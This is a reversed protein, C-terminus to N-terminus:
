HIGIRLTRLSLSREDTFSSKFQVTKGADIFTVQTIDNDHALLVDVSKYGVDDLTTLRNWSLDVTGFSAHRLAGTQLGSIANGSLNFLEVRQRLPFVDDPVRAIANHSLDVARLRPLRGLFRLDSIRNWAASLAELSELGGSDLVVRRVRNGSIDVEKLNFLGLLADADLDGVIANYSVDLRQLEHLGEFMSSQLAELANFALGLYELRALGSFGDVVVIENHSLDLHRLASLFFFTRKPVAGVRNYALELRTINTATQLRRVLSHVDTVNAHSLVVTDLSTQPPRVAALALELEATRLRVNGALSLARLRPVPRFVQEGIYRVDCYSLNIHRPVHDDWWRSVEFVDSGISEFDNGAHAHM